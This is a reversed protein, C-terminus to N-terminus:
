FPIDSSLNQLLQDATAEASELSSEETDQQNQVSQSQSKQGLFQVSKAVIETTWHKQGEKEYTRTNLRGEVYVQRGKKLYESCNVAQSGWVIVQHWETSQHKAGQADVWQRDTAIRMKTTAIGNVHNLVPDAGLNGVLIVKNVSAM